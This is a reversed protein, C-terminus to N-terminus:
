KMTPSVTTVHFPPVTAEASPTSLAKCCGTIIDCAVHDALQAAVVAVAGGIKQKTMLNTSKQTNIQKQGGRRGVYKKGETEKM